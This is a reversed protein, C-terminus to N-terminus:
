SNVINKFYVMQAPAKPFIAQNSYCRMEVGAVDNIPQFFAQQGMSNTMGPLAFTPETAGIRILQKPSLGFADGQKVMPHSKVTVVFGNIEYQIGGFGNKAKSEKDSYRRLASERSAMDKYTIPNLYLNADEMLGRGNAEAFGGLVKLMTLQSDGVDYEVSKWYENTSADINFITGTNVNIKRIGSMSKAYQNKRWINLGGSTAADLATIGTATGTVTITRANLDVATVTFVADAGSSILSAGNYFNLLSGKAGGWIGMAFSKATLTVVTSTASVNASSATTGIGAGAAASSGGYLFDIELFRHLSKKMNEVVLSTAQVFAQKSSAARAAANVGLRSRLMHQSGKIQAKGVTMAISAELDFADEDADAYTVGNEGSLVVAETYFGGSELDRSVFPIDKQLLAFDPVVDEIGVYQDKFNADLTTATNTVAM